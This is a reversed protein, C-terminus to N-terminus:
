LRGLASTSSMRVRTHRTRTNRKGILQRASKGFAVAVFTPRRTTRYKRKNKKRTTKESKPNQLARPSSHTSSKVYDHTKEATYVRKPNYLIAGFKGYSLGDSFYVTPHRRYYNCTCSHKFCTKFIIILFRAIESLSGFSKFSARMMPTRLVLMCFLDHDIKLSFKFKASM